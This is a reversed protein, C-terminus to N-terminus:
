QTRFYPDQPSNITFVRRGAANDLVIVAHSFGPAVAKPISCSEDLPISRVVHTIKQLIRRVNIVFFMPQTGNRRLTGKIVQDRGTKRAKTGYTVNTLLLYLGSRSVHAPAMTASRNSQEGGVLAFRTWNGAPESATPRHTKEPIEREVRANMRASSCHRTSITSAHWSLSRNTQEGEVDNERTPITGSSAAPRRTKEPIKRKREGARGNWCQETDSITSAHWPLSRNTQEGEVDNERTPITGSSAAPRRTKEPIKRKREGARGNWCQETDSITSAHWPLSRNTQEGEVDNERTPITGSSAAPRRTKEPIKRKREGARGNWCQEM